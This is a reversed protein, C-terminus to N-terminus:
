INRRAAFKAVSAAASQTLTPRGDGETQKPNTAMPSSSDKRRVSLQQIKLSPPDTRTLKAAELSSPSRLQLFFFAFNLETLYSDTEQPIIM